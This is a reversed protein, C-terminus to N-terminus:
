LLSQIQHHLDRLYPVPLTDYDIRRRTDRFAQPQMSNVRIPYPWHSTTRRSAYYRLRKAQMAPSNERVSKPMYCIYQVAREEGSEGPPPPPGYQNQHFTRSDWIVVDGADVRLVRKRDAFRGLIDHPDCRQWNSASVPGKSEFYDKHLLHTGEYAVFTRSENSTLTAFAQYCALGDVLPSQDSHTWVKDRLRCDPPIYCSGDFGVTLGNEVDDVGWLQAFISRININLRIKWAARTHGAYHFKHIGHPNVAKHIFEYDHITDQWARMDTMYEEVEEPALVAPVVAYGKTALDQKIEEINM